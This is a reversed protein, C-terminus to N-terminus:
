KVNTGKDTEWQLIKEFSQMLARIREVLLGRQKLLNSMEGQIQSVERMAASTIEEARMEAQRIIFEAEKKATVNIDDIAKQAMTLTATLTTEAKKLDLITKDQEGIRAQLAAMEKVVSELHDAIQDLLVHVTQTDYGRFRVPFGAQRIEIPTIKM